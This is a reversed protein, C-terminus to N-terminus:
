GLRRNGLETEQRAERLTIELTMVVEGLGTSRLVCVGIHCLERSAM